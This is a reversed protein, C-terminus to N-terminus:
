GAMGALLDGLFRRSSRTEAAAALGQRLHDLLHPDGALRALAAAVAEGAIVGAVLGTTGDVVQEVLGGVPTVVAPVGQAAAASVVGSQSAETYTLAVVDHRRFVAAVEADDVWRNVVNVGLRALRGAEPGIEGEGVLSAEVAIGTAALRELADLFLPLGKYALIRGFFLVRLPGGARPAAPAAASTGAYNLDPHFTRVIRAPAVGMAVLDDAVVGSLTFVRDARFADRLLWRNVLATRDGPHPRADHVIVGYPLGLRQVPRAILPTWVHPMLVIVADARTRALGERLVRWAAPLTGLRLLAGAGREFTSVAILRDGLDAFDATGANQRSLSVSCDIGAERAADALDRALRLMPGRRGWYLFAPREITTTMDGATANPHSLRASGSWLGGLPVHDRTKYHSQGTHRLPVAALLGNGAPPSVIAVVRGAASPAEGEPGWAANGAM